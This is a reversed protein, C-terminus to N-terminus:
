LRKLTFFLVDAGQVAITDAMQLCFATKGLSSVSGIVYLGPYLRGDLQKDLAAFGTSLAPARAARGIEQWFDKQM